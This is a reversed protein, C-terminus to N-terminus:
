IHLALKRARGDVACASGLRLFLFVSGSDGSHSGQLHRRGKAPRDEEDELTM